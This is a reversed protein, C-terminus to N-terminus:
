KDKDNSVFQMPTISISEGKSTHDIEKKDQEGLQKMRWICATPNMEQNIAGKNVRAIIIDNMGNKIDKLVSFKSSLYYYNTPTIGFEIYAEQISVIDKREKTFEYLDEFVKVAEEENWKEAAKNGIKFRTSMGNM